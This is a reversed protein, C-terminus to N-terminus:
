YKKTPLTTVVSFGLYLKLGDIIADHPLTKWHKGHSVSERYSVM